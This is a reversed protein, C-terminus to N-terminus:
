KNKQFEFYRDIGKAIGFAMFRRYQPDKLKEREKLNSLFGGEVLIAPMKTERIVAFNATKLGRSQAGTHKVIRELVSEGLKKSELLRLSDPNKTDKYYFIEIGEADCSPSYNYHVSVFLHANLDNAFSARQELPIYQDEERTLYADYGMESLFKQILRATQLTLQKEEYHNKESQAGCDKGGHGADVVIKEMKKPKFSSTPFVDYVIADKEFRRPGCSSFFLLLSFLSLLHFQLIKM